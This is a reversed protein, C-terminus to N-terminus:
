QMGKKRKEDHFALAANLDRLKEADLVRLLDMGDLSYWVAVPAEADAPLCLYARKDFADDVPELWLQVARIERFFAQVPTMDEPVESKGDYLKVKSTM